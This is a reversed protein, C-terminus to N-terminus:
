INIKTNGGFDAFFYNFCGWVIIGVILWLLNTLAGEKHQGFFGLCVKVVGFVVGILFIVNVISIFTTKFQNLQAATQQAHVVNALFVLGLTLVLPSVTSSSGLEDKKILSNSKM